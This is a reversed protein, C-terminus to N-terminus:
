TTDKIEMVMIDMVDMHHHGKHLNDMHEQSDMLVKAMLHNNVMHQLNNAMHQHNNAMYPHNNTM